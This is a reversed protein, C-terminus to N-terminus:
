ALAAAVRRRLPVEHGPDTHLTVTLGSHAVDAFVALLTVLHGPPEASLLEDANTIILAVAGTDRLCDALADWNHGFYDPFRLARSVEDFFAARTRCAGGDVMAPAPAASVTLWPPLADAASTM